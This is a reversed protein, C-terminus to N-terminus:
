RIAVASFSSRSVRSECTSVRSRSSTLWRCSWRRHRRVWHWCHFSAFKLQWVADDRIASRHFAEGLQTTYLFLFHSCLAMNSRCTMSRFRRCSPTSSGGRGKGAPYDDLFDNMAAMRVQGVSRARM